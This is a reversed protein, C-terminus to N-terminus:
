KRLFYFLLNLLLTLLLSLLLSTAIPIYLTFGDKKLTIDGPLRGVPLNIREALIMFVGLLLVFLGLFVLVKGLESM